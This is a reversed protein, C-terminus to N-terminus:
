PRNFLRAWAMQVHLRLTRRDRMGLRKRKGLIEAATDLRNSAILSRCLDHADLGRGFSDPLDCILRHLAAPALVQHMNFLGHFGFTPGDPALREYAFRAALGPEAFRIGHDRMLRERNDHCICIDEPHRIVMAPDHMARLLKKSRLSFGGNGVSREPPEGRLPAGIYDCDLFEPQWRTADLVYGDWQVVLVHRTGIHADLGQLMFQSYAAVSDIELPVATIDPPMRALWDPSTFLLARAFRVQSMCHQMAALALAPTRTDVCALTVDPLHLM